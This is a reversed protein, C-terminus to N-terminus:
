LAVKRAAIMQYRNRIPLRLAASLSQYYAPLRDEYIMVGWRLANCAAEGTPLPPMDSRVGELDTVAFPVIYFEELAEPTGTGDWLKFKGLTGAGQQNAWLRNVIAGAAISKIGGVATISAIDLPLGAPILCDTGSKIPEALFDPSFTPANVATIRAM